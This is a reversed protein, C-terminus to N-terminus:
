PGEEERRVMVRLAECGRWVRRPERRAREPEGGFMVDESEGRGMRLRAARPMGNM